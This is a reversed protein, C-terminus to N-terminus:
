AVRLPNLCKLAILAENFNTIPTMSVNNAFKVIQIQRTLSFCIISALTQNM